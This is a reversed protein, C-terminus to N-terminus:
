LLTRKDTPLLSSVGGLLEELHHTVFELRAGAESTDTELAELAIQAHLNLAFLRQFIADCIEAIGPFVHLATLFIIQLLLRTIASTGPTPPPTSVTTILTQEASLYNWGSL